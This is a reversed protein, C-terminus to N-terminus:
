RGLFHGLPMLPEIHDCSIKIVALLPVAVIAGGVGWVWSVVVFFIMLWVPHLSVSRGVMVPTILNAEVINVALYISPAIAAFAISDFTIVAVLFVIIAGIIAGVFPLYNLLMAMVGWLLPNPMGMVWMGTGIVLGLGFNIITTTLLYQSVSKEIARTLEVVRRKNRWDPMLEVLKELGRDGSALLYFLLVVMLSLGLLVDGTTSFVRSSISPQRVEVPVIESVDNQKKPLHNWDKPFWSFLVKEEKKKGADGSTIADIQETVDNIQEFPERLSLLKSEVIAMNQDKDKLWSAAPRYAFSFTLVIVALAVGLIVFTGVVHPIGVRNLRNIIPSFLLNLLLAGTIPLMVPKCFYLSYCVALITLLILCAAAVPFLSARISELSNCADVSGSPRSEDASVPNGADMRFPTADHGPSAATKDSAGANKRVTNAIVRTNM